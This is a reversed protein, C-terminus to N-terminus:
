FLIGTNNFGSKCQVNLTEFERSIALKQDM